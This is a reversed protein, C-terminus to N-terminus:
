KQKFNVIRPFDAPDPMPENSNKLHRNLFWLTYTNMIRAAECGGAPYVAWYYDCFSDHVTNKIQFWISDRTARQHLRMATNADYLGSAYMSLIPQSLGSSLVTEADQFYGEFSLFARCRADLRCMEAAVGAGYSHGGVAVSTVALRGAFLPDSTNWRGLEELIVQLDRVRDTFSPWSTNGKVVTGDPFVSTPADMPDSAVVVYGYSALYPGREALDTRFSYGGPSYAYIPYPAGVSACPVEPQASSRFLHRRGRPATMWSVESLVVMEDELRALPTRAQAVAPYWVSVVFAADGPLGAYRDHRTPDTVLRSVTGVRFPGPPKPFPTISLSSATRYFRLAASAAGPDQWSFTNADANGRQLLASPAWDKLNVSVEIPYLDFDNTHARPMGGGLILAVDWGSLVRLGEVRHPTFDPTDLLYVTARSTGLSPAGSLNGLVLRFREEPEELDDPYVQIEVSKTIEGQAFHLAAQTTAYDLGSMATQDVTSIDVTFPGLEMDNGRLVRVTLPSEHESIAYSSRELGVGPDNDLITVTASAPAGLIGGGTSTVLTLRFTESSERLGDNLISLPVWKRHEGPAFSLTGSTAEYDLGALASDDATVFDVTVPFDGDDNRTVGILMSKGDEATGYASSEVQLGKDNDTIRVTANTPTGLVAGEGPLTLIVWFTEVTEILGDNLVPVIIWRNTQGPEFTLMGATATYDLGAKATGDTTTYDVTAVADLEGTRLVSLVAERANETVSLIPPKAFELTSAAHIECPMGVGVLAIALQATRRAGGPRSLTASKM